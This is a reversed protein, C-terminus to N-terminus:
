DGAVTFAYLLMKEMIARSCYTLLMKYKWSLRLLQIYCYHSVPLYLQDIFYYTILHRYCLLVNKNLYKIICNTIIVVVQCLLIM